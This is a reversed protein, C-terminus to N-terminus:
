LIFNSWQKLLRELSRKRKSQYKVINEPGIRDIHELWNRRYQEKFEIIQPVQVERLIDNVKHDSLTYGAIRGTCGERRM